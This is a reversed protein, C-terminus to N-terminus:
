LDRSKEQRLNLSIKKFEERVDAKAFYIIIAISVRQKKRKVIV